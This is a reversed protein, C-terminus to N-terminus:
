QQNDLTKKVDMKLIGQKSKKIVTQRDEKNVDPINEIYPADVDSDFEILDGSSNEGEIETKGYGKEAFAKILSILDSFRKSKKNIGNTNKKDTEWITKETTVNAAKLEETKEEFLAELASRNAANPPILTTTIKHVKKMTDITEDIDFPNKLLYIKFGIDKLYIGFLNEFAGIIQLYGLRGKTTFTIIETEVNFYFMTSASTNDFVTPISVREENNFEEIHTPMRRVLWGTIEKTEENKEIQSFNYREERFTLQEEGNEDTFKVPIEKVYDVEDNVANFLEQLIEQIEDSNIENINSNINLKAFYLNALRLV